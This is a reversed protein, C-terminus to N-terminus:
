SCNSSAAFRQERPRKTEAATVYQAALKSLARQTDRNNPNIYLARELCYRTEQVATVQNAAWLWEMEHNSDERVIDRLFPSPNNLSLSPRTYMQGKM